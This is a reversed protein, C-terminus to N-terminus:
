TSYRKIADEVNMVNMVNMIDISNKLKSIDLLGLQNSTDYNINFDKINAMELLKPLKISSDNVFNYIGTHWKEILYPIKPFLDPIITLNVSINNVSNLRNKMKNLFCKPNDNFSIPYQIRLLLVNNYCKLAEELLIRCKTYYTADNDPKVLENNSEISCKYMSGSVYIRLPANIQNCIDALTLQYTLNSNMTEIKNNECWAITPKGSIGASCIVYKPKYLLLQKKLLDTNELRTYINIYSKNQEKLIKETESGLFGNSGLLVYDISKFLKNNIDQKSLIYKNDFPIDLNITPCLYHYNRELLPNFFGELQYLMMSDDELSIFLHGHNPPIYLKNLNEKNLFYKKYTMSEYNIVYDIFSGKICSIHKGYPSTHIGRIVNKKNTSIFQQKINNSFHTPIFQLQGRLDDFFSCKNNCNWYDKNNSYWEILEDLAKNFNVNTNWGLNKLKDCNVYYRNDNFPRDDIFKIKGKGIKNIITNALDLIKIPNFNGINYIEGFTGKLMILVIGDIVDDIHIFDRIKNGDGQLPLEEDNLAKLIFCPIVKEHFQYKGYVNNCRTIIIPLNYSYKYTNIIMECAAKSASYPNTPNFNSEESFYDANFSPGYVEDTSFHLLKINKKSNNIHELLVQTANINDKIFNDFNKYSNDVHTQAAFHIIYNIDFKNFTNIFDHLLIDDNIFYVNPNNIIDKINKENSAYSLKDIIILKNVYKSIYNCFNSGIFGCGGTILLNLKNLDLTM